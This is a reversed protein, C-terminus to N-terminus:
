HGIVGACLGTPCRTMPDLPMKRGTRRLTLVLLPRLVLSSRAEM